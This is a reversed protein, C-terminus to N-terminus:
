RLGVVGYRTKLDAILGPCAALTASRDGGGDHLLVVAGPRAATHVRKSITEAPPKGWDRPDVSWHLSRMGLGRAVRVVEPTWRGGPQRYFPVQADPVAARIARQTRLLDARIEAVPRRGLDIDHQWSHNCLQHGERVIRRVLDPHRRVQAGVVCFTATVGAAGLRDLVKPTWVPSPGDDFTLAVGHVGTTRRLGAPPATPLPRLPTATPTDHTPRPTAAPAPDAPLAGSAVPSPPGASRLRRTDDDGCGAALLALALVSALLARARM